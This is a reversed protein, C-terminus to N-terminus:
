ASNLRRRANTRERDTERAAVPERQGALRSVWEAFARALSLQSTLVAVGNQALAQCTM